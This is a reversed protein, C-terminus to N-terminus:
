LIRDCCISDNESCSLVDGPDRSIGVQIRGTLDLHLRDLSSPLDSLLSYSRPNGPPSEAASFSAGNASILPVLPSAFIM